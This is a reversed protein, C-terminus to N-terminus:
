FDLNAFIQINNRSYNESAINSDNSTYSYRVGSKWKKSLKKSAIIRLRLRKDNRTVGLADGYQSIRYGVEESLKWNNNLNHKLRARLSHRTPSYNATASNNRQNTELQYRLRLRGSNTKNKYEVRFQHRNGQLYDYLVNQSQINSYRYRLALYANNKLQQRGTMKFDSINQYATQNYNSQLLSFEPIIKWNNTRLTYDLGASYFMFNETTVTNYNILLLSGKFNVKNTLPAKIYAFVEQYFDSKNTPSNLTTNTINDDNGLALSINAITNSRRIKKRKLLKDLQSNALQTIKKDQNNIVAKKYWKIATTKQKNKEAILALNYYAIQRFKTKKSLRQFTKESNKYQGLKYQSVGINYDLSSKKMGAKKANIFYRLATKYKKQKFYKVGNKFETVGAENASSHSIPLTFLLVTLFLIRFM